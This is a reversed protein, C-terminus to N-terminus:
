LILLSLVRSVSINIRQSAQQATDLILKLRPSQTSDSIFHYLMRIARHARIISYSVCCNSWIMLWSNLELPKEFYYSVHHGLGTLSGLSIRCNM